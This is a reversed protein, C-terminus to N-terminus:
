QPFVKRRMACRKAMPLGAKEEQAMTHALRETVREPGLKDFGSRAYFPANWPVDNFTTLTMGNLGRRQAEEYAKEILRRGIRRGQHEHHVSLEHIHLEQGM